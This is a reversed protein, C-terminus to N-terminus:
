GGATHGTSGITLPGGVTTTSASQCELLPVAGFMRHGNRRATSLSIRLQVLEPRGGTRRGALGESISAGPLGRRVSIRGTTGLPQWERADCGLHTFAHSTNMRARRNMMPPSSGVRYGQVQRDLLDVAGDDSTRHGRLAINYLCSAGYLPSPRILRTRDV